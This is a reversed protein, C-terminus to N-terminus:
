SLQLCHHTLSFGSIIHNSYDYRENHLLFNCLMEIGDKDGLLM